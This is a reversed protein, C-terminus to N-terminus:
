KIQWLNLIKIQFIKKLNNYSNKIRNVIDFIDTNISKLDEINFDINDINSPMPIKTKETLNKKADSLKMLKSQLSEIKKEIRLVELDNPDKKSNNNVSNINANKPASINRNEGKKKEEKGIFM